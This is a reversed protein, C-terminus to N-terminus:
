HDTEGLWDKQDIRELYHRIKMQLYKKNFNAGKNYTIKERRFM